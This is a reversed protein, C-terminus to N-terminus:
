NMGVVRWNNSCWIRGGNVMFTELIGSGGNKWWEALIYSNSTAAEIGGFKGGDAFWVRNSDVAATVSQGMVTSSRLMFRYCSPQSPCWPHGPNAAIAAALQAALHSHHVNDLTARLNNADSFHCPETPRLLDAFLHNGIPLM